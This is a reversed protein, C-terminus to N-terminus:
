PLIVIAKTKGNYFVKMGLIESVARLPIFTRNSKILAPQDLKYAVKNGNKDLVELPKGDKLVVTSGITIEVKTGDKVITVKRTKDDFSITGGMGEVLGRAPVLTRYTKSDLYSAVDLTKNVGKIVLVKSNITTHIGFKGSLDLLVPFIHSAAEEPKKATVAALYSQANSEMRNYTEVGFKEKILVEAAAIFMNGEMAAEVAKESAAQDAFSTNNLVKNAYNSIKGTLALFLADKIKAQNVANLDGSAFSQKIFDASAKHGGSLSNYIPLFFFYGETLSTKAEDLKNEAVATQVKGAYTITALVFIKILTKDFMQRTINFQLKNGTSAAEQLKPIIVTDLLDKTGMKLQDKWATDRKVATNRLVGFYLEVAQDVAARAEANKGAALAEAAVTKTLYTIEAYFYGQLGKDVAQKAQDASLLGQIAADLTALIAENTEASRAKVKAEFVSQYTAKATNLYGEPKATFLALLDNYAQIDAQQVATDATITFTSSATVPASVPANTDAYVAVPSLLMSAILTSLIFKKM